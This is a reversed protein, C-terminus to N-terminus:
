RAGLVERMPLPSIGLAQADAIGTASTMPAEMLEVEDWTAPSAAGMVAQVAKLSSRVLPLPVHLLRRRRGLSRLVVRAVDDYTLTEPGALEFRETGNGDRQLAAMVCDVVDEAWIPQYAARGSGSIPVAPLLTLREMLGVWYDHPSYVISPAFVTSSVRAASVAEEALAKARFFRMPAHLSAGMASFFVFREVGAREAAHVLRYTAVGNLEEISGRPQDRIAAALHIVTKVGRMANRFSGPDSLDGLAIQVRVREPGLRRPDRVLCRVRAGDATLRRLLASGVNGTAGTLLIM